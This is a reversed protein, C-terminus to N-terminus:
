ETSDSQTTLVEPAKSTLRLKWARARCADSCFQKPVGRRVEQPEFERGCLACFSIPPGQMDNTEAGPIKTDGSRRAARM